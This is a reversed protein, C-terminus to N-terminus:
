TMAPKLDRKLNGHDGESRTKLALFDKKQELNKKGGVATNGLIQLLLLQFSLFDEKDKAKRSALM